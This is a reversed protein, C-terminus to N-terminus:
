TVAIRAREVITIEMPEGEQHITDIARTARM